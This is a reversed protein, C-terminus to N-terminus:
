GGNYKGKYRSGANYQGVISVKGLGSPVQQWLIFNKWLEVDQTYLEDILPTIIYVEGNIYWAKLFLRNLSWGYGSVPNIVKTYNFLDCNDYDWDDITFRSTYQGNEEYYVIGKDTVLTPFYPNSSDVIELEYNQISAYNGNDLLIYIGNHIRIPPLILDGNYTKVTYDTIYGNDGDLTEILQSEVCWLGPWIWDNNEENLIDYSLIYDKGQWYPKLTYKAPGSYTFTAVTGEIWTYSSIGDDFERDAYYFSDRKMNTGITRTIVEASTTTFTGTTPCVFRACQNTSSNLMVVLINNEDMEILNLFTWGNPHVGNIWGITVEKPNGGTSDYSAISNTYNSILFRRKTQYYRKSKFGYYIVDNVSTTTIPIGLSTLSGATQAYKKIVPTTWTKSAMSTKIPTTFRIDNDSNSVVVKRTPDGISSVELNLNLKEIQKWKYKM